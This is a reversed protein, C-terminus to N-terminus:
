SEGEAREALQRGTDRALRLAQRAWGPDAGALGCTPTVVTSELAQEARLGLGQWFRHVSRVPERDAPGSAPIVGSWLAMGADAAEAYADLANERVLSVDFSVADVRARQLVSVPVDGACCHVIGYAGAAEFVQHLSDVAETEEIVPLRNLGSMTPVSGALVTPLIPEDVQLLLQVRPLRKGIEAVHATVGEALSQVLDRRAGADALVREGRPRELSAALTLPGAVQLKLPGEYGQAAEEVADLDARLMARARRLDAGPRDVVRWGTPQVDVPFDVLLAATRGVMDAGAGRNPLEPVHPLDPLEGFVIRAAEYPDTGPLSGVSTAAGPVWPLTSVAPWRIGRHDLNSCLRWEV